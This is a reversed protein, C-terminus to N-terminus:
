RVKNRSRRKNFFDGGKLYNRHKDLYNPIVCINCFISFFRFGHDESVLYITIVTSKHWIAKVNTTIGLPLTELSSGSSKVAM